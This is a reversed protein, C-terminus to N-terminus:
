PTFPACRTIPNFNRSGRMGVSSSNVSATSAFWRVAIRNVGVLYCDGPRHAAPATATPGIESPARLRQRCAVGEGDVCRSCTTLVHQRSHCGVDNGAALEISITAVPPRGSGPMLQSAPCRRRSGDYAHTGGARHPNPISIFAPSDDIRWLSWAAAEGAEALEPVVVRDRLEARAFDVFDGAPESLQEFALRHVDFPFV